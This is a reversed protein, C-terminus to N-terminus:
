KETTEEKPQEEITFRLRDPYGMTYVYNDVEEITELANVNAIHQKTVIYCQDAYLQIQALMYEANQLTTTFLHEGVYFSIENLGLLKAANISSNYNAREEATLWGEITGNVVFGNVNSSNDSEKIRFIMEEKAEELTRVHVPPVYIEMNWVESVSASPNEERFRVQEDNLLVWKNDLYDEWTSGLNDYLEAKMKEPFQVFQGMIDRKIYTYQAM